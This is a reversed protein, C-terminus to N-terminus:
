KCTGKKWYRKHHLMHGFTIFGIANATVPLDSAIGQQAFQEDNLSAFLLDTAKRVALFEEKISAFSREGALSNEAYSNEDFHLSHPKIKERFAYYVTLFFGNQM